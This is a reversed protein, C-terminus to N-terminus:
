GAATPSNSRSRNGREGIVTSREIDLRDLDDWHVGPMAESDSYGWIDQYTKNCLLLRDDSDYLAFGESISEVADMLRAEAEEAQEQVKRLAEEARKRETIDTVVNVVGRDPLPATRVQLVKGSELTYEWDERETREPADALWKDVLTEPDGPGLDGRQACFLNEVRISDGVKLLGEPFDYLDIYQQNCLVFKRDSDILRIGGPMNELAVRLQAEKEALEAEARKRETVDTTITVYGGDPTPAVNFQLTRGSGAITREYSVTEGRQYIANAREILDDKDGTGFDGRDAQYRMADRLTGGVRVLGDPFECLESYRENFLVYNGDRDELAMGDPMNDLALRLHAEKEALEAEARKRATIDTIISVYGGEPTPALYIQVTRGSGAIEREYSVAKGRQYTAVVEEILDDKDGPGFDGREAQYRLEDRIPM